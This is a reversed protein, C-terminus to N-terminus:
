AGLYVRPIRPALRCLLEYVITGAQEAARETLGPGYVTAIDGAQVDPLGTVDAMYMDMCIRGLIPCLKDRVRVELQNSLVRPLGDGYGIPLVAIRSDRALEATCGYSIKAGAPLDRVAAIRSKLRM